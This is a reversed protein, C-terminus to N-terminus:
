CPLRNSEHLDRAFVFIFGIQNVTGAPAFFFGPRTPAYEELEVLVVRGFFKM